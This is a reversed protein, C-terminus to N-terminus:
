RGLARKAGPHEPYLNLAKEYLAKGKAADNRGRSEVTGLLFYVQALAAADAPAAQAELWGAVQRLEAEARQILASRQPQREQLAVDLQLSGYTTRTAVDGPNARLAQQLQNMAETVHQAKLSDLAKAAFRKSEADMVTNDPQAPDTSFPEFRGAAAEFLGRQSEFTSAPAQCYLAALTDDTVALVLLIRTSSQASATHAEVRLGPAGQVTVGSRDTIRAGQARFKEVYGELLQGGTAAKLGTTRSAHYYKRLELITPTGTRPPLPDPSTTVTYPHRDAREQVHWGKPYSLRVSREPRAFVDLAEEGVPPGAEAPAADEAAGSPATQEIAAIDARDVMLAGVDPIQITVQREDSATIEGELANGNKLRVVDAGASAPLGAALLCLVAAARWRRSPQHMRHPRSSLAARSLVRGM